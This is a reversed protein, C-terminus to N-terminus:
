PPYVAQFNVLRGGSKDAQTNLTVTGKDPDYYLLAAEEAPIYKQLFLLSEWLAKEIDLSSCIRMTAEWFFDRDYLKLESRHKLTNSLAITFPDKLLSIMRAHEENLKEEGESICVLHGVVQEESVLPMVMLSTCPVDHFELMERSIGCSDPTEFIFVGFAEKMEDHTCNRAEESLPTLYDVALCEVATAIAVTRMASQSEDFRQLILRDLPLSKRLYELCSGLAKEIELSGCIRITSERFFDNDDIHM